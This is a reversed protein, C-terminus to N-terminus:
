GLDEWREVRVPQVRVAHRASMIVEGTTLVRVDVTSGFQGPNKMECVGYDDLLFKQHGYLTILECPEGDEVVRLSEARVRALEARIRRCTAREANRELRLHNKDAELEAIRAEYADCDPLSDALAIIEDVIRPGYPSLSGTLEKIEEVAVMWRGM